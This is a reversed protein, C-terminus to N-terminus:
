RAGTRREADLTSRAAHPPRLVAQGGYERFYRLVARVYGPTEGNQPLPAFLKRPRANYGALASILDGDYHALLVALLRTGALVNKAPQWLEEETLGLRRANYPMVQMLGIAGAKSVARPDFASERRIVARVLQAPVPWVDAVAACAATIAQDLEAPSVRASRHESSIEPTGGLLAASLAM